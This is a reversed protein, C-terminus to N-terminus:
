LLNRADNGKGGEHAAGERCGREGGQAGRRRRDGGCAGAARAMTATGPSGRVPEPATARETSVAASSAEFVAGVAVTALSANASGAEAALGCWVNSPVRVKFPTAVEPPKVVTLPAAGCPEGALM